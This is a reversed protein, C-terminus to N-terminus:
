SRRYADAFAEYIGTQTLILSQLTKQSLDHSVVIGNISTSFKGDADISKSTLIKVGELEVSGVPAFNRKSQEITGGLKAEHAIANRVDNFQGFNANFYRIATRMQDNKILANLTPIMRRTSQINEIVAAFQYITHAAHRVAIFSWEFYPKSPRFGHGRSEDAEKKAQEESFKLLEISAAFSIIYRHLSFLLAELKAIHEREDVPFTATDFRGPMRANPEWTRVM